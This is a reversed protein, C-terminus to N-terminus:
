GDDDEFKMYECCPYLRCLEDVDQELSDEDLINCDCGRPVHEDCYQMTSPMYFWVAPNICENCLKSDM